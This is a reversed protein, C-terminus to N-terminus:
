IGRMKMEFCIRKDGPILFPPLVPAGWSDDGAVGQQVLSCRVITFRPRPLEYPHKAAELQEPTWPLASFNMVPAGDDATVPKNGISGGAASFMLGRGRLDTVKAWRVGTKNGTEQPVLYNEFNDKVLNRYIGLKGGKDRDCYTEEPGNGYWTLHDYDADFGFRMGFEPMPPLGRKPEYEMRIDVAGDPTVTYTVEVTTVPLTPLISKWSISFSDEGENIEPLQVSGNGLKHYDDAARFINPNACGYESALKWIGQRFAMSNGDDNATPARWFSPQPMMQIMEKGGYVYSVMKGQRYSFLVNFNAGYVGIDQVGRIVTFPSVPRIGALAGFSTVPVTGIESPEATGIDGNGVAAADGVIYSGQGFAVEYGAEAWDTAKKLRFSVTYTYEGDEASKEFPLKYTRECLPAVSVRMPQEKILVGGRSLSAVCDFRDTNVFNNKNVVKVRGTKANVIARITQYVFKVEQIKGYPRRTSDIIGNGSFEYDTPREDFDGGYAQYWEGFRNKVTFAQDVFDWIFGGQFRPEKEELDRYLYMGGNSNGMSHTFECLILPRDTHEELFKGCKEVPTYMESYMDSVEPTRPDHDIGEYHVLRDPDLAHFKDTMDQVVSGSFSENGDSWILIAPHNKDRQYCSNVRDLVLERYEPRNGPICFEIDKQGSIYADWAGHTEMNNEAIMYIGMEDCLRYIISADPYHSTRIANINNRKMTIVDQRVKEPDPTRGSDAFFEHRDVGHFVIRKGNICMIGDIMEFRRFGVKEPVVECVEGKDDLVEILLDYLVPDEASWLLPSAIRAETKVEKVPLVHIADTNGTKGERMEEATLTTCAGFSVDKGDKALAEGSVITEGNRSLTYRIGAKSKKPASKRTDAELGLGDDSRLLYYNVLLTANQLDRDPIARIRVDYLHEAPITYLFVDRFIGSHRFFDQDELWAGATWRFDEVALKNVGPKVFPTLDFDTPTFTDESYGVYQGNLWVAYGSEVGQFSILLPHDALEEPVVFEKVYCGTPNFGEPIDGPEIDEHGDWPWAVNQYSPKGYGETQMPSPVRIDEWRSCDYDPAEFGKPATRPTRAYCFKWLGNLSYRFGTVGKRAEDGNEFPTHDSHAPLANQKFIEPNKVIDFDFEAM